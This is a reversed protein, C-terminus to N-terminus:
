PTFTRSVATPATKPGVLNEKTLIEMRSRTASPFDKSLFEPTPRPPSFKIRVTSEMLLVICGTSFALFPRVILAFDAGVTTVALNGLSTQNKRRKKTPATKGGGESGGWWRFHDNWFHLCLPIIRLFEGLSLSLCNLGQGEITSM